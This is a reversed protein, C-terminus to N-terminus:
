TVKKRRGHKVEQKPEESELQESPRKYVRSKLLRQEGGYQDVEEATLSRAPVGPIFGGGIYLLAFELM